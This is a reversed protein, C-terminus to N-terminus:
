WYCGGEVLHASQPTEEPSPRTWYRNLIGELYEAGDWRKGLIGFFLQLGGGAHIGIKGISKAHHALPYSYSGASIIAVDYNINNMQHKVENLNTFWSKSVPFNTNITMPSKIVELDFSHLNFGPFVKDIRTFQTKITNAFPSIVLVRKNMLAKSWPDKSMEDSYPHIWPATMGVPILQSIKDIFDSEISTFATGWAGLIDTDSLAASYINFFEDVESLNEYYFGANTNIEKSRRKWNPKALYLLEKISDPMVLIKKYEGLFRAETGGLRGVLGPKNGIILDNIASDAMLPDIRRAVSISKKWDWFPWRKAVEHRVGFPFFTNKM